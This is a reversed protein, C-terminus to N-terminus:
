YIHVFNRWVIIACAFELLGYYSEESKEYRVFIKRFQNLWSHLREVVWRRAKFQPNREKETKEEGRAKIHPIYGHLIVDEEHGTYGADLCVNVGSLIDDVTPYIEINDLTENLLKVDHTNAGSIVIAIPIGSEDCM